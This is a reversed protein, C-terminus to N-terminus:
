MGSYYDYGKEFWYDKPRENSFSLTGIRKLSKIGYKVPIILRLPYGQDAPLPKRNMEYCLLTQDHLASAMDIGVYYDGDPTVLGIYGLAAEETLNCARIFDSFKVGGWNTVQSWGEICKFDFTIETKPLKQIDELTLLLTDGTTRIVILKWYDADFDKGLGIKGNVRPKKVAEEFPFEKARDSSSFVSSFVAENADLVGRLPIQIGKKGQEKPANKLQFWGFGALGFFLVFLSFAVSTKRRVIKRDYIIKDDPSASM